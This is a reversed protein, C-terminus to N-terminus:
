PPISKRKSPIATRLPDYCDRAEYLLADKGGPQWALLDLDDVIADLHRVHGCPLLAAPRAP